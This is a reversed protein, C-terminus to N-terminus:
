PIDIFINQNLVPIIGSESAKRYLESFAERGKQGLALSFENVYLDIHKRVIEPSTEKSNAKIFSASAEPNEFGYEISRRIIRNVSSSIEASVSRKIAIIGLPVPLGTLNEWFEGLDTIKILGKNQYTFRTEHILIGADAEDNLVANEIESFLFEVKNKAEPYAISFLLNATTLRGPIAIRLNEMKSSLPLNKTVLLPGNGYGLAGGSDLIIYKDAVWAYAHTSLKTIDAENKFAKRNLEEVDALFYDFELGETDILRHVMAHFIFTDNPCPSFGLKLKM